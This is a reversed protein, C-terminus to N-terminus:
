PQNKLSTHRDATCFGKRAVVAAVHDYEARAEAALELGEYGQGAQFHHNGDEL